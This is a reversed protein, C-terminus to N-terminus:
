YKECWQFTALLWKRKTRRGRRGTCEYWGGFVGSSNLVRLSTQGNQAVASVHCQLITAEHFIVREGHLNLPRTGAEAFSELSVQESNM